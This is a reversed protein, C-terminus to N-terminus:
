LGSTVPSLTFHVDLEHLRRKDATGQDYRSVIIAQLGELGGREEGSVNGECLGASKIELGRLFRIIILRPPQNEHPIPALSGHVRQLESEVLDVGLAKLIIQRM